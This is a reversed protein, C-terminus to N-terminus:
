NWDILKETPGVWGRLRYNDRDSLQPASLGLVAVLRDEVLSYPIAGTAELYSYNDYIYEFSNHRIRVVSVQRQSVQQYENRWLDPLEELLFSIKGETSHDGVKNMISEYNM